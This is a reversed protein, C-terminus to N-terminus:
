RKNFNEELFTLIQRRDKSTLIKGEYFLDVDLKLWDKLDFLRRRLEDDPEPGYADIAQPNKNRISSKKLYPLTVPITKQGQQIQSEFAEILSDFHVTEGYGVKEMLDTYSVGYYHAIKKLVEPTPKRPKKTRPDYGKELTNLYTHSIRAESAAQRQSKKKEKRLSQLYEGFENEDNNM